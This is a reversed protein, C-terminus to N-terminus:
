KTTGAPRAVTFSSDAVFEESDDPEDIYLETGRRHIVHDLYNKSRLRVTGEALGPVM